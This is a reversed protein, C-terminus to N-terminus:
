VLTVRKENLDEWEKLNDEVQMSFDSLEPCFQGLLRFSPGVVGRLYTIENVILDSSTSNEYFKSVPIGNENEKAVQKQYEEFLGYAMRKAVEFPRITNSFNGCKIIFQALSIRHQESKINFSLSNKRFSEFYEYHKSMDTSLICGKYMNLFETSTIENFFPTKELLLMGKIMHYNELTSQNGFACSYMSSNKQYFGSNLGKHDIDHCLCAFIIGAIQNPSFFRRLRGRLLSSYVFQTLDVIHDWNHYPNNHYYGKIKLLFKIITNSETKLLPFLDLHTFMRLILEIKKSEDYNFVNFHRSLLDNDNLTDNIFTVNNLEDISISSGNKRLVYNGLSNELYPLSNDVLVLYNSVISEGVYVLFYSRHNPFPICLAQNFTPFHMALSSNIFRSSVFNEILTPSKLSMIFTSLKDEDSIPNNSFNNGHFVSIFTKEFANHQFLAFSTMSLMEQLMTIISLLPNESDSATLCMSVINRISESEYIVSKNQKKTNHLRIAYEMMSAYVFCTKEHYIEFKGYHGKCNLAVVIIKKNPVSYCISIISSYNINRNPSFSPVRTIDDTNISAGSGILAMIYPDHVINQNFEEGNRLCVMRTLIESEYSYFCIYESQIEKQLANAIRDKIDPNDFSSLSFSSISNPFASLAKLVQSSNNQDSNEICRPIVLALGSCVVKMFEIDWNTFKNASLKDSISVIAIVIGDSTKVPFAGYSKGLSWSDIKANYDASKETLNSVCFYDRNQVILSPIGIFDYHKKILSEKGIDFSYFHGHDVIYVEVDNTEICESITHYLFPIVSSFSSKTTLNLQYAHISRRQQVSRILYIYELHEQLLTTILGVFFSSSLMDENSFTLQFPNTLIAYFLGNSGIPVIIIPRNKNNLMSDLIVNYNNCHSPDTEIIISNTKLAHSALSVMNMLPYFHYKDNFEVVYEGSKTDKLFLYCDNTNVIKKFNDNLKTSFDSDHIMRILFKFSEFCRSLQNLGSFSHFIFSLFTENKILRSTSYFTNSGDLFDKILIPNAKLYDSISEATLGSIPDSTNENILMCSTQTRMESINIRHKLADLRDHLGSTLQQDFILQDNYKSISDIMSARRNELNSLVIAYDEHKKILSKLTDSPSESM